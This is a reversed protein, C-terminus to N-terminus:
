TLMQGERARLDETMESLLEQSVPGPAPASLSLLLFFWGILEGVWDPLGLLVSLAFPAQGKEAM